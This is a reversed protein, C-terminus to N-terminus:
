KNQLIIVSIYNLCWSRPLCLCFWVHSSRIMWNLIHTNPMCDANMKVNKTWGGIALSWIQQSCGACISSWLSIDCLHYHTHTIATCRILKITRGSKCHPSNWKTQLAACIAFSNATDIHFAACCMQNSYKYICILQTCMWKYFLSNIAIKELIDNCIRAIDILINIISQLM